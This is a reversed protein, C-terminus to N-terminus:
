RPVWCAGTEGAVWPGTETDAVAPLTLREKVNLGAPGPVWHPANRRSNVAVPVLVGMVIVPM